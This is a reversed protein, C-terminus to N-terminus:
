CAPHDPVLTIRGHRVIEGGHLVLTLDPHLAEVRVRRPAGGAPATPWLDVDRGVFGARARYRDFISGGTGAELAERGEALATLLPTVLRMWADPDAFNPDHLALATPPTAAAEPAVDPCVAVNAGIGLLAHRVRGALLSTQTLVGAVKRDSLLLDNVWKTRPALRRASAREIAEATAVAPWLTLGVQAAAADLDLHHVTCLHLNGRLAQWPRGRQGHFRAGTAALAVLRDPLDIGAALAAGLRDFQSDPARDRVVVWAEGDGAVWADGGCLVGWAGRIAAPLDREACREAQTCALAEATSRVDAIVRLRVENAEPM